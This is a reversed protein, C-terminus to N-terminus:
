GTGNYTFSVLNSSTIPTGLTYSGALVLSATATGSRDTCTGSFNFLTTGPAASSSQTVALAVVLPLGFIKWYKRM